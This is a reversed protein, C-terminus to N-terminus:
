YEYIENRDCMIFYKRRKVVLSVEPRSASGYRSSEKQIGHNFLRRKHTAAPFRIESDIKGHVIFVSEDMGASPSLLSIQKSTM